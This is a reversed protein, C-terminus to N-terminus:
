EEIKKAIWEFVEGSKSLYDDIIGEEYLEYPLDDTVDPYRSATFETSLEKLFRFFKRSLGCSKALFILSHTTGPSDALKYIYFAKLAKEVAQQCYFASVNYRKIGKNLRATELDYKAQKWWNEIERRM